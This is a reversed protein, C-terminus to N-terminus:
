KKDEETLSAVVRWKGKISFNEEKLVELESYKELNTEWWVGELIAGENVSSAGPKVKLEGVFFTYPVRPLPFRLRYDDEDYRDVDIDITGIEAALKALHSEYLSSFFVFTRGNNVIIRGGFNDESDYERTHIDGYFLEVGPEVREIVTKANFANMVKGRVLRYASGETLRTNRHLTPSGFISMIASHYLPYQNFFHTRYITMIGPFNM